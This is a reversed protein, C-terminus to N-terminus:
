TEPFLRRKPARKSFRQLSHGEFVGFNNPMSYLVTYKLQSNGAELYRCIEKVVQRAMGGVVGLWRERMEEGGGGVMESEMVVVM